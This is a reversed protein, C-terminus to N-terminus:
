ESGQLMSLANKLSLDLLVYYRIECYEDASDTAILHIPLAVPIGRKPKGSHKTWVAVRASYREHIEKVGERPDSVHLRNVAQRLRTPAASLVAQRDM